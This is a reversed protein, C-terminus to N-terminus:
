SLVLGAVTLVSVAAGGIILGISDLVLGFTLLAVGAPLPLLTWSILDSEDWDFWRPRYREEAPFLSPVKIGGCNPCMGRITPTLTGCRECLTEEEPM